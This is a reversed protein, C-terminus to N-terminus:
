GAIPKALQFAQARWHGAQNAAVTDADAAVAKDTETGSDIATVINQRVPRSRSRPWRWVHFLQSCSRGSARWSIGGAVRSGRMKM